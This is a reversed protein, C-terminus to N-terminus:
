EEEEEEEHTDLAQGGRDWQVPMSLKLKGLQAAKAGTVTEVVITSV